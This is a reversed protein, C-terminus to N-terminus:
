SITHQTLAYICTHTYQICKYIYIYVYTCILENIYQYVCMTWVYLTIYIYIHAGVVGVLGDPGAISDGATSALLDSSSRGLGLARLLLVALM